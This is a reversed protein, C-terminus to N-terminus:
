RTSAKTGKRSSSGKGERADIMKSLYADGDKRRGMGEM